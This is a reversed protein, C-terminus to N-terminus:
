VRAEFENEDAWEGLQAVDAGSMAAQVGPQSPKHVGQASCARRSKSENVWLSHEAVHAGSVVAHVSPSPQMALRTRM